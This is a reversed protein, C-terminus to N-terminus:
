INSVVLSPEPSPLSAEAGRQSQLFLHVTAREAASAFSLIAIADKPQAGSTEQYRVRLAPAPTKGYLLTGEEFTAHQLDPLSLWM